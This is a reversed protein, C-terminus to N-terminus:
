YTEPNLIGDTMFGPVHPNAGSGYDPTDGHQWTSGQGRTDMVLAAYGAAPWHLWNYPFGRGGGYGIYEVVCPLPGQAGSPVLFWGKIPQGKYGAYTVDYTEIHTLGFDALEFRADLPYQRSEDLTAQWFADFDAPEQLEPKYKKLEDLSYDFFPM